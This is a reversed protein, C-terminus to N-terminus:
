DKLDLMQRHLLFGAAALSFSSIRKDRAITSFKLDTSSEALKGDAIYGAEAALIFCAFREGAPV